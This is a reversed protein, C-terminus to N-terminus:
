NEEIFNIAMQILLSDKFNRADYGTKEKLKNLHYQITNVHIDLSNAAIKLSGNANYFAKLIIIYENITKSDLKFFVKQTIETKIDYNLNNLILEIGLDNYLVVSSENKNKSIEYAKLAQLYQKRVLNHKEWHGSCGINIKSGKSVIKDKLSNLLKRLNDDTEDKIAAIIYDSSAFVLNSPDNLRLYNFIRKEVQSSNDDIRLVIIRRQLTIDIGLELGKSILDVRLSSDENYIWDFLYNNIRNQKKQLKSERIKGQILIETMKQVISIYKRTEESNGTIGVVGLIEGDIHIPLNQGPQTGEVKNDLSIEYDNLNNKIIDYAAKHFTNIRSQDTSAIIIGESNMINMKTGLLKSIQSVIEKADERSIDM